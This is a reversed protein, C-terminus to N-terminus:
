PPHASASTRSNPIESPLTMMRPKCAGRGPQSFHATELAIIYTKVSSQVVNSEDLRLHLNQIKFM